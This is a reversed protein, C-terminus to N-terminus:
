SKSPRLLERAHHFATNAAPVGCYIAAALLVEELETEELEHELGKAVHLRFEEWRGLAVTMALVLMRRTRDDLVPRTWIEGWAYRSILDQFNAVFPDTDTLRAQVYGRGLVQMRREIGERYRESEHRHRSAPQEDDAGELHRVVLDVFRAPRESHSFHATPLEAYRASAIRQAVERGMQPPTSPDHTGAIVLTPATIQELLPVLDMDRIAACCGAYGAPEMRELTQRVTEYHETVRAAYAPTFFRSLATAAVAQMGGERVATIRQAFVEPPIQASTNALVLRRVRQPAHAAVWMGIMGGISVGAYHFQTAQAADAVALVDAGLMAMSYDGEPADSAGHGRKDIRIVRYHRSLAPMVPDWMAHDSGLSSVLILAPADGRGDIRWYIRAGDRHVFPM